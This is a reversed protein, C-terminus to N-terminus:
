GAAREPEADIVVDYAETSRDAVTTPLQLHYAAAPLIGAGGYAEMVRLQAVVDEGAHAQPLRRWFEFGGVSRLAESRYLVCAGVWAVKYALWGREPLDVTALIHQLNAANHLRWREWGPEGRRIREPRVAGDWVEFAEHEHPRLDDLHLLGQVAAGVFGCGLEDIATRLRALVEPEILVDDDLFLVYPARVQSLLFARQEALGRRPLHRHVDVDHGRVRLAEVASRVAPDDLAPRDGQDSMVVRFGGARQGLLGALTVALAAPRGCTPIAIDVDRGTTRAPRIPDDRTMAM